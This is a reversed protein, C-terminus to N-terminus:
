LIELEKSREQLETYYKSLEVVRKVRTVQLSEFKYLGELTASGVGVERRGEGDVEIGVLSFSEVKVM